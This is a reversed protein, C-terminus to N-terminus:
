NGKPDLREIKVYDNEAEEDTIATYWTESGAFKFNYSEFINNGKTNDWAKRGSVGNSCVPTLGPAHPSGKWCNPLTESEM